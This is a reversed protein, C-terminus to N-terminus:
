TGQRRRKNVCAYVLDVFRTKLGSWDFGTLAREQGNRGLQRRLAPSRLLRVFAERLPAEDCSTDVLIGTEGNIVADPVGGNDGGIVAKGFAAAELFVIGFGEMDNELPRNATVFLACGQYLGRKTEQDVKGVFQVRDEIHIEACLQRLGAEEPGTGAIALRFTRLDSDLSAFSRILLDVGKRRVLRGLFLVYHDDELNFKRLIQKFEHQPLPKLADPNIGPPILCINEKKVGIDLLQRITADSISIVAAASIFDAKRHITHPDSHRELLELGYAMLIYPVSRERCMQCWFSADNFWCGIIMVEVGSRNVPSALIRRARRLRGRRWLFSNLKRMPLFGDGWRKGSRRSPVYDVPYPLSTGEFCSKSVTTVLRWNLDDTSHAMLNQLYDAVGGVAPFCIHTHSWMAVNLRKRRCSKIDQQMENPSQGSAYAWGIREDEKQFLDGMIRDESKRKKM